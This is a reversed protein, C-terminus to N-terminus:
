VSPPVYHQLEGFYCPLYSIVITYTDTIKFACVDYSRTKKMSIYGNGQIDSPFARLANFTAQAVATYSGRHFQASSSHGGITYGSMTECCQKSGSPEDGCEFSSM